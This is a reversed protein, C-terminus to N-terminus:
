RQFKGIMDNEMNKRKIWSQAGSHKRKKEEKGKSFSETFLFMMMTILLAALLVDTSSHPHVPHSVTSALKNIKRGWSVFISAELM